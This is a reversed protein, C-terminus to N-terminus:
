KSNKVKDIKEKIASIVMPDDNWAEMNIVPINHPNKINKVKNPLIRQTQIGTASMSAPYYFIKEIVESNLLTEIASKVKPSKFMQWALIVNENVYGDKVLLKKIEERFSIEQKTMTAFEIDWEAPQGHGILVIGVKSKDTGNLNQNARHVFMKKLFMSDFLPGTFKPTIGFKELNLDTIQKKGEATHNSDTLFVESMIIDSAGENLAQITAVDPSPLDSLFSLYFKTSLDNEKRFEYELSKMMKTHEQRYSSKGVTLYHRRLTSLFFPRVFFPIFKIKQEDFEKFQHIWGIPNYTEPEGHTFYIIATHGLGPDDIKRTLLPLTEIEKPNLVVKTMLLYGFVFCFLGIFCTLLLITGDVINFLIVVNSYLVLCSLSLFTGMKLPHITLYKVFLGGLLFASICSLVSLLISM